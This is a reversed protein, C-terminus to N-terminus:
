QDGAGARAKALAEDGFVQTGHQGLAALADHDDVGVQAPAVYVLFEAQETFHTHAFVHGAADGEFVNDFGSCDGVQPHYCGALNRGIGRFQQHMQTEFLQEFLEALLEVRQNNVGRRDEGYGVGCNEAAKNAGRQHNGPGPVVWDLLQLLSNFAQIM